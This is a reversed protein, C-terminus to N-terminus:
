KIQQQVSCSKFYLELCNNQGKADVVEEVEQVAPNSDLNTRYHQFFLVLEPGELVYCICLASGLKMLPMGNAYHM